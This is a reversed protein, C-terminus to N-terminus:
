EGQDNHKKSLNTNLYPVIKETIDERFLEIGAGATELRDLWEHTSSLLPLFDEKEIEEKELQAMYYLLDLTVQNLKKVLAKVSAMQEKVKTEKLEDM